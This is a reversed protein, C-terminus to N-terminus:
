PTAEKRETMIEEWRSLLKEQRSVAFELDYDIIKERNDARREPIDDRVSRRYLKEEALRQVDQGM